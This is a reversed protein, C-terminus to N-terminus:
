TSWRYTFYSIGKGNLLGKASFCIFRFSKIPIAFGELNTHFTDIDFITKETGTFRRLVPISAGELTIAFKMAYKYWVMESLENLSPEWSDDPKGASILLLVPRL